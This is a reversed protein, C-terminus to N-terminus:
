REIGSRHRRANLVTLSAHEAGALGSSGAEIGEPTSCRVQNTTGEYIPQSSGAEIGEPTSCLGTGVLGLTPASIEIGSRHRRANLVAARCACRPRSRRSGAEIGEPTSCVASSASLAARSGEIGSRHRRANLM